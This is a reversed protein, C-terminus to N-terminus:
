PASGPKDTAKWPKGIQLYVPKGPANSHLLAGMCEPLRVTLRSFPTPLAKRCKSTPVVDTLPVCRLLM